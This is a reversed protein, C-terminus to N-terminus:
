SHAVLQQVPCLDMRVQFGKISGGSTGNTGTTTKWALSPRHKEWGPLFPIWIRYGLETWSMEWAPLWSPIAPALDENTLCTNRTNSVRALPCSLGIPLFKLELRNQMKKIKQGHGLCKGRINEAQHLPAHLHSLHDM